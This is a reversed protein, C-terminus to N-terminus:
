AAQRCVVSPTMAPKPCRSAPGPTRHRRKRWRVFSQLCLVRAGRASNLGSLLTTMHSCCVRPFGPADAMSGDNEVEPCAM